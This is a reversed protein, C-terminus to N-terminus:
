LFLGTFYLVLLFKVPLFFKDKKRKKPLKKRKQWKKKAGTKGKRTDPSFNNERLHGVVM